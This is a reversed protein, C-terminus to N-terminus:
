IMHNNKKLYSKVLIKGLKTKFMDM